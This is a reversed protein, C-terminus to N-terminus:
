RSRRLWVRTGKPALGRWKARSRALAPSALIGAVRVPDLALFRIELRGLRELLAVPIRVTRPNEAVLLTAGAGALARIRAATVSGEVFFATASEGGEGRAGPRPGELGLLGEIAGALLEGPPPWLLRASAKRLFALDSAASRGAPCLAIRSPARPSRLYGALSFAAVPGQHAGFRELIAAASRAAAADPAVAALATLIRTV